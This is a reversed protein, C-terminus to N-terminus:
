KEMIHQLLNNWKFNIFERISFTCVFPWQLMSYTPFQPYLFVMQSCALGTCNKLCFNMYSFSINAYIQLVGYLCSPSMELCLVCRKPDPGPNNFYDTIYFGLLYKYQLQEPPCKGSTPGSRTNKLTLISM